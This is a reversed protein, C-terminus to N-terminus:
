ERMVAHQEQVLLLFVVPMHQFHRTRWAFHQPRVARRVAIVPHQFHRAADSVQRVASGDLIRMDGFGDPIPDQVPLFCSGSPTTCFKCDRM